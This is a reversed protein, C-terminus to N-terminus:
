RRASLIVEGTIVNPPEAVLHALNENVWSAAIRRSLEAGEETDFVGVTALENEGAELIHYEIFGETEQLLPIFENEVRDLTEEDLFEVTLKYHRIATYM